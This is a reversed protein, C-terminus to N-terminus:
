HCALMAKFRGLRDQSLFMWAASRRGWIDWRARVGTAKTDSARCGNGIQQNANGCLAFHYTWEGECLACGTIDGTTQIDLGQLESVDWAEGDADTCVCAAGDLVCSARASLPQLLLLPLLLLRPPARATRPM